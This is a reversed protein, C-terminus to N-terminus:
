RVRPLTVVILETTQWPQSVDQLTLKVEEWDLGGIGCGLRPIGLRPIGRENCYSLAFNVSEWIFEYQADPGPFDQTALNLVYAPSTDGTKWPFMRGPSFRGSFCHVRYEQYMAPYRDKFEKAIGAGMVGHCNCGHGIAPLDLKFLDGTVETFSM